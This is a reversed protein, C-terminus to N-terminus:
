SKCLVKIIGRDPFYKKKLNSYNKELFIILNPYLVPGNKSHKGVGTIINLVSQTTSIELNRHSILIQKIRSSVLIKSEDLTFGHLDIINYDNDLKNSNENALNFLILEKINKSQNLFKKAKEKNGNKYFFNSYTILKRWKEHLKDISEKNIIKEQKEYLNLNYINDNDDNLNNNLDEYVLNQRYEKNSNNVYCNEKFLNDLKSSNKYHNLNPNNKILYDYTKKFNLFQYYVLKIDYQNIQYFCEYLKKLDRRINDNKIDYLDKDLFDEDDNYKYNSKKYNNNIKNNQNNWLIENEISKQIEITKKDITKLENNVVLYFNEAENEFINDYVNDNSPTEFCIDEQLKEFCSEVNFNCKELIEIIEDYKKNFIAQLDDIEKLYESKHNLISSKDKKNKDSEASTPM